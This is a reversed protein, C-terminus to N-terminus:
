RPCVVGAYGSLARKGDACIRRLVGGAGVADLYFGLLSRVLRTSTSMGREESFVRIRCAMDRRLLPWLQASVRGALVVEEHPRVFTPMAARLRRTLPALAGTVTPQALYARTAPGCLPHQALMALDTPTDVDFMGAIHPERPAHALNGELALQRALGNDRQRPLKVLTLASGPHFGIYDASFFNNAIVGHDLGSVADRLEALEAVSLLPGSGGGIYLVREIRHSAVINALASGFRFGAGSGTPEVVAEPRLDDFSDAQSAAVVIPAFGGAAQAKAIVDRAIPVHSDYVLREPESDGQKGAFLVLGVNKAM